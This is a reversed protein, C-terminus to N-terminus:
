PETETPTFEDLPLAKKLKRLVFHYPVAEAAAADLVSKIYAECEERSSQDAKPAHRPNVM